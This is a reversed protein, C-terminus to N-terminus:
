NLTINRFLFDIPDNIGGVRTKEAASAHIPGNMSGCARLKQFFATFNAAARCSLGSDRL